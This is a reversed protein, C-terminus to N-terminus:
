KLVCFPLGMDNETIIRVAGRPRQTVSLGRSFNRHHSVNLRLSLWPWWEVLRGASTGRSKYRRCVAPVSTLSPQSFSYSFVQHSDLNSKFNKSSVGGLQRKESDHGENFLRFCVIPPSAREFKRCFRCHNM